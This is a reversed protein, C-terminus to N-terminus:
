AIRVCVKKPRLITWQVTEMHAAIFLSNVAVWIWLKWDEVVKSSGFDLGWSNPEMRHMMMLTTTGWVGGNMMIVLDHQSPRPPYHHRRSQSLTLTLIQASKTMNMSKQIEPEWHFELINNLLFALAVEDCLQVSPFETDYRPGDDLRGVEVPKHFGELSSKLFLWIRM